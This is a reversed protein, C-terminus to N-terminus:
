ATTLEPLTERLEKNQVNKRYATYRERYKKKEADSTAQEARDLADEAAKRYHMDNYLGLGDTVVNLATAVLEDPKHFRSILAASASAAAWKEYAAEETGDLSIVVYPSAGTYTTHDTRMKLRGDDGLYTTSILQQEAEEPYMVLRGPQAKALGPRSFNLDVTETYFFQPRMLLGVASEAIPILAGAALLYPAQTAFIPLAGAATVAKSLSAGLEKNLDRDVSLEVTFVISPETVAPLYYLLGSGLETATVELVKNRPADPKLMHVVRPAAEIAYFPKHASTVLVDGSQRGPVWRVTDPYDGVYVTELTVTLPKGIGVGQYPDIDSMARRAELFDGVCLRNGDSMALEVDVREEPSALAADFEAANSEVVHDLEELSILQQGFAAVLPM